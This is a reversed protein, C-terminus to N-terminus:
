DPLHELSLEGGNRAVNIIPSYFLYRQMTEASTTEIVEESWGTLEM